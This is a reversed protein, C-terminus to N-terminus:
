SNNPAAGPGSGADPTESAAALSAPTLRNYKGTERERSRAPTADAVDRRRAWQSEDDDYRGQNLWTAPYPVYQLDKATASRSYIAAKDAIMSAAAAATTGREKAVERAIKGFRDKADRKGLKKPYAAWFADFALRISQHATKKKRVAVLAGCDSLRLRGSRILSKVVPTYTDDDMGCCEAHRGKAGKLIGDTQERVFLLVALENATLTGFLEMM